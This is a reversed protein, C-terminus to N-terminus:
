DRRNRDNREREKRQKKEKETHHNKKPWTKKYVKCFILGDLTKVHFPCRYQIGAEDTGSCERDCAKETKM